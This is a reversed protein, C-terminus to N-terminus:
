ATTKDFDNWFELLEKAYREREVYFSMGHAAGPVVILRKPATCVKYNEYTMEVPVFPDDTGHAFLVPIKNEKLADITSYDDGGMQIKKRCIMDVINKIPGYKLHMHNETVHKWIAHPSTFGSDAIIGKVSEPLGLGSAMLVTTAGMSVGDLYIPLTGEYKDHAWQAWAKCDYRELLGFGIYEGGSEGQCRQEIFLVNCNNEFWFDAALGFDRNWTSRWGHVAIILRKPYKCTYLHGTLKTGDSGVTEVPETEVEALKVAGDELKDIFGDENTFGCLKNRVKQSNNGPKVGDKDMAIDIMKKTLTCVSVGVAVAAATAAGSISLIKATKENMRKKRM